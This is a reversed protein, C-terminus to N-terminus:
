MRCFASVFFKVQGCSFLVVDCILWLNDCEILSMFNCISARMRLTTKETVIPVSIRCHSSLVVALYIVLFHRFVSRFYQELLLRFLCSVSLPWLYANFSKSENHM